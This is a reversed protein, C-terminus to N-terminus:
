VVVGNINMDDDGAGKGYELKDYQAKVVEWPLTEHEEKLYEKTVPASTDRQQQLVLLRAYLQEFLENGLKWNRIWGAGVCVTVTVIVM